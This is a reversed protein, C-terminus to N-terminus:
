AVLVAVLEPVGPEVVPVQAELVVVLERAESHKRHLLALVAIEVFDPFLTRFAIEV